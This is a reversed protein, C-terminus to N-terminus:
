NLNMIKLVTTTICKYISKIDQRDYMKLPKSQIVFQHGACSLVLLMM